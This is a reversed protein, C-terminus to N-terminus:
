ASLPMVSKELFPATLLELAKESPLMLLQTYKETLELTHVGADFCEIDPMNRKRLSKESLVSLVFHQAFFHRSICHIQIAWHISIIALKVASLLLNPPTALPTSAGSAIDM